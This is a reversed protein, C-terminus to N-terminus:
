WNALNETYIKGDRSEYLLIQIFFGGNIKPAKKM